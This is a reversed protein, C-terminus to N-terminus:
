WEINKIADLDKRMDDRIEQVLLRLNNNIEVEDSSSKLEDEETNLREVQFECELSSFIRIM